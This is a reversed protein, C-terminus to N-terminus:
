QSRAAKKATHAAADALDAAALKELGARREAKLKKVAQSLHYDASNQDDESKQVQEAWPAQQWARYEDPHAELYRSTAQEPTLSTTGDEEDKSVPTAAAATEIRAWISQKTAASMRSEKPREAEYKTLFAQVGIKDEAVGILAPSAPTYEYGGDRAALKALLIEGRTQGM